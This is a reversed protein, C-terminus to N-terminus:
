PQTVKLRCFVRAATGSVTATVEVLDPTGPTVVVPVGFTVTTGGASAGSANWNVLDASWEYSPTLDSAPTANRTHRFVLTGAGRSVQTIGQGAVAPSSGLINELANVLGDKDYDDNFGTQGAVSFGGM